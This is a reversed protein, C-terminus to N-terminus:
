GRLIDRLADLLVDNEEPLKVAARYYGKGLGPYNSCDRILIGKELLADTLDVSDASFFIYNAEGPFVTFGMERLAAAIRSRESAVLKRAKKLYADSDELAACGAAQAPGSVSWEPQQAHIRRLLETDAAMLYGLRTGPMAFRKTFADVVLLRSGAISGGALYRRMTRQNEDAVFGLFCEDVMLWIGKRACIQAIRDLLPPDILNGVPNSPSCLVVMDQGPQQGAADSGEKRLTKPNPWVSREQGPQQGAMTGNEEDLFSRAPTCTASDRNETRGFNELDELFRDTLAFDDERRLVHYLIGAGCNEAARRYGSFSPATLLIRSPRITRVVAEILESAGNGCLIKEAPLGTYGSLAQRLRGCSQDPYRELMQRLQQEDRDPHGDSSGCMGALGHLVSEPVGLPNINVSFDYLIKEQGYIEGGHLMLNM